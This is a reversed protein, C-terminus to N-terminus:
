RQSASSVSASVLTKDSWGLLLQHGSEIVRSKGKKLQDVQADCVCTLRWDIQSMSALQSACVRSGHALLVCCVCVSLLGPALPGSVLRLM